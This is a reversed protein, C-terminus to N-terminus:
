HDGKATHRPSHFRRDSATEQRRDTRPDPDAEDQRDPRKQESSDAYLVQAM